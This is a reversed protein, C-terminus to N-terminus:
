SDGGDQRQVSQEILGVESQLIEEPSYIGVCCPMSTLLTPSFLLYDWSSVFTSEDSVAPIEHISLTELQLAVSGDFSSRGVSPSLM